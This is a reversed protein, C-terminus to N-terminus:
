FNPGVFMWVSEQEPGFGNLSDDIPHDFDLDLSQMRKDTAEPGISNLLDLVPDFM